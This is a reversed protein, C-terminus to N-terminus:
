YGGAEPTRIKGGLRRYIFALYITAFIMGPIWWFFAVRMAYDGAAANFITLSEGPGVSPLVNPFVGFAASTLMGVIFVASALFGKMEAGQRLFIQMGVMGAVALLPFIWGWPMSTLNNWIQPQIALSYATVAVMLLAALYWIKEAVVTVRAHIAGETRLRLWHAGHQVLTVLATVGVLVTYLDLIGTERGPRSPDAWLASFFQQQENLPVGRVVNGLAAGYFVCLLTSALFFGVDCLRKWVEGDFHSRLELSIARAILLWLVMMLPLYFGSFSTAYLLPFALVLLGGAALLFVENGDWVPGISQLLVRREGDNKAVFIHLVGTGLDFGDLIVYMAVMVAIICFWITEM